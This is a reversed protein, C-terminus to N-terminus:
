PPTTSGCAIGADALPVKNRRAIGATACYSARELASAAGADAALLRHYAAANLNTAQQLATKDVSSLGACASVAILIAALNRWGM